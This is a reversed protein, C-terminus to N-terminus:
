GRLYWPYPHDKRYDIQKVEHNIMRWWGYLGIFIFITSLVAEFTMEGYANTDIVLIGNYIRAKIFIYTMCVASMLLGTVGILGLWSLINQWRFIDRM